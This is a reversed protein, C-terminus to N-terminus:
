PFKGLAIRFLCNITLTSEWGQPRHSLGRRTVLITTVLPLLETREALAHEVFVGTGLKKLSHAVRRDVDAEAVVLINLAGGDDGLRTAFQRDERIGIDRRLDACIVLM